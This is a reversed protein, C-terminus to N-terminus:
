RLSPPMYDDNPASPTCQVTCPRAAAAAAAHGGRTGRDLVLTDIAGYLVCRINASGQSSGLNQHWLDNENVADQIKIAGSRVCARLPGDLKSPPIDLCLSENLVHCARSLTSRIAALWPQSITMRQREFERNVHRKRITDCIRFATRLLGRHPFQTVAVASPFTHINIM